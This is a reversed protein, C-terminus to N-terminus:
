EKEVEHMGAWNMVEERHGDPFVRFCKGGMFLYHIGKKRERNTQRPFHHVDIGDVTGSSDGSKKTWAQHSQSHHFPYCHGSGRAYGTKIQEMWEKPFDGELPKPTVEFTVKGATEATAASVADLMNVTITMETTNPELLLSPHIDIFKGDVRMRWKWMPIERDLKGVVGYFRDARQEDSDDVSSFFAAMSAHSHIDLVHILNNDKDHDQTHHVSAGTVRQEPIHVTYQQEEPNWWVSAYVESKHQNYVEKFFALIQSMIRWPIKPVNLYIGPKLTREIGQLQTGEPSLKTVVRAVAINRVSFLGDKGLMYNFPKDVRDPIDTYYGILSRILEQNPKVTTTTNAM